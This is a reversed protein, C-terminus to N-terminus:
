NKLCKEVLNTNPSPTQCLNKQVKKTQDIQHQHNIEIIKCTFGTVGIVILAVGLIFFLTILQRDKM